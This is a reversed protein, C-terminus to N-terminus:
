RDHGMAHRAAQFMVDLPADRGTWLTFSAAGQRVLMPLGGLTRCGRARAAALLPTVDPNAVIDYVFAAPPIESAALPSDGAHASGAMGLSTCNVILDSQRVADGASGASVSLRAGDSDLAAVLAESRAPTRNHLAIRRAGGRLLAYVVARAAGGAGLVCVGAGTVDFGGEHRLADLFGTIDTNHGVLRGGDRVITNVAGATAAETSVEDLLPAVAQKHPVTVNAGRHGEGRLSAVRASLAAEPTDWAEYRFPLGLADFGAQQFVPSVSHGVPHGILGVRYAAEPRSNSISNSM